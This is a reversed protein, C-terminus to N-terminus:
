TAEQHHGKFWAAVSKPTTGHVSAQSAESMFASPSDLPRANRNAPAFRWGWLVVGTEDTEAIFNARSM